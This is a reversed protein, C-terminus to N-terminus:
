VSQQVAVLQSLKADDAFDALSAFAQQAGEIAAQSGEISGSM